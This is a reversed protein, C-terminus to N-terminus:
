QQRDKFRLGPSGQVELSLWRDGPARCCAKESHATHVSRGLGPNGTAVQSAEALGRQGSPGQERRQSTSTTVM